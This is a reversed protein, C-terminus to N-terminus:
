LVTTEYFLTSRLIRPSKSEEAEISIPRDSHPSLVLCSSICVCNFLWSFNDLAYMLKKGVYCRSVQQNTWIDYDKESVFELVIILLIM